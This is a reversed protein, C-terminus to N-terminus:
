GGIDVILEFDELRKKVAALKEQSPLSIDGAPYDTHFRAYKDKQFDHYPLIHVNQIEPLVRLFMGTLDINQDDDNVGPILPIRVTIAAGNRSLCKLNNLILRNSSGTYQRHREADMMKLDFLFLDTEEAVRMLTATDVHGATDVTRHIRERGCAKLLELLFGPQLMPEGGSFTVGGGSEEYFPIDKKIIDMVYDSSVKRGALERAESPCNETCIGDKLCLVNDIVIGAPTMTLAGQPCVEICEACGICREPRYIVQPTADLGEPNHCWRCRLYCGKLFVTTRIGPGDHIAYRKIDFIIGNRM